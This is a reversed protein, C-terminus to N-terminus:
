SARGRRLGAAGLVGLLLTCLFWGLNGFTPVAEPEAPPAGPAAPPAPPTVPLNTIQFGGIANTAVADWPLAGDADQFRQVFLGSADAATYNVLNQTCTVDAAYAASPNSFRVIMGGGPFSFDSEATFQLEYNGVVADGFPNAPAQTNSVVTTYAGAAINGGNVTTPVMDVQLAIEVDNALGTDFAITDGTAIDFAPLNQYVFGYFPPWNIGIGFPFCVSVAPTNGEITTVTQAQAPLAVLSVACLAANVVSRPSRFSRIKM